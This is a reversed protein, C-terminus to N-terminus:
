VKNEYELDRRNIDEAGFSQPNLKSSAGKPRKSPNQACIQCEKLLFIVDARLIGYYTNSVDRWTADWGLHDNQMHASEVIDVILDDTIVIRNKEEGTKDM